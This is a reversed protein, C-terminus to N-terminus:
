VGALHSTDNLSLLTRNHFSDDEELVTIGGSSSQMHVYGASDLPLHIWGSVVFTLAFSVISRARKVINSSM